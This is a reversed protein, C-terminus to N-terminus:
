HVTRTTGQAGTSRACVRGTSNGRNKRGHHGGVTCTFGGREDLGPYQVDGHGLPNLLLLHWCDHQDRVRYQIRLESRSALAEQYASEVRGCDDPHISQSLSDFYKTSHYSNPNQFRGNIFVPEDKHNIIALGAPLTDALQQVSENMTGNMASAGAGGRSDDMADKRAKDDATSLPKRDDDVPKQSHVKPILQAIVGIVDDAGVGPIQSLLVHRDTECRDINLLDEGRLADAKGGHSVTLLVAVTNTTLAHRQPTRQRDVGGAADAWAENHFLMLDDGWYIAAPHSLAMLAQCLDGITDPWGPTREVSPQDM